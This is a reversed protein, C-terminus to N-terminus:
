GDGATPLSEGDAQVECLLTQGEGLQISAALTPSGVARQCSTTKGKGHTAGEEGPQVVGVVAQGGQYVHVHEVVVKQEAPRRLKALAEVQATFTRAFRDAFTLYLKKAELTQDKFNARRLCDLAQNNIAVMQAALMGELENQPALGTMAASAFNTCGVVDQHNQKTANAVRAILSCNFDRDISGTAACRAAWAHLGGRHMDETLNSEDVGVCKFAQPSSDYRERWHVAQDYDAQSVFMEKDPEPPSVAKSAQTKKSM